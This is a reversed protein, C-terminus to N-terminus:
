ELKLNFNITKLIDAKCHHFDLVIVGEFNLAEIKESMKRNPSGIFFHKIKTFIQMLNFFDEMDHVIFFCTDFGIIEELLFIKKNTCTEIFMKDSYYHKIFSSFGKSTDYVYVKKNM